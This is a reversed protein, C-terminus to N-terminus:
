DTYSLTLRYIGNALNAEMPLGVKGFVKILLNGEMDIKENEEFSLEFGARSLSTKMKDM